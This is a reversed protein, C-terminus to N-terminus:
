WFLIPLEAVHTANQFDGRDDIRFKSVARRQAAGDDHPCNQNAESQQADGKEHCAAHCSWNLRQDACHLLDGGAIELGNEGAKAAFILNTPEGAAEVM